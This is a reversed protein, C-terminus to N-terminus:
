AEQIPFDNFAVCWNYLPYPASVLATVNAEVYMGSGPLYTYDLPAVAGDSDAVRGHGDLSLTAYSITATGQMARDTTIRLTAQGVVSVAAIGVSGGSDEVVLGQSPMLAETQAVSGLYPSRLAIPPCPTLYSVLLETGRWNATLPRMPQWNIGLGMVRWMVQGLKLAFWRYGNSDLHGNDKDTVPYVPGAM